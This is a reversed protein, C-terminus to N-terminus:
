EVVVVLSFDAGEPLRPIRITAEGASRAQFRFRQKLGAPAPPLVVEVEEFSVASSTSTPTGYEGPGVAQLTVDIAQDITVRTTEGSQSQSIQLANADGPDGACGVIYGCLALARSWSGIDIQM